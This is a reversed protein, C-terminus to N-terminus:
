KPHLSAKDRIPVVLCRKLRRTEECKLRLPSYELELLYGQFGGRGRCVEKKSYADVRNKKLLSVTCHAIDGNVSRRKTTINMCTTKQQMDRSRSQCVTRNRDM